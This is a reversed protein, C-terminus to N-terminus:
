SYDQTISWFLNVGNYYFVLIDIAGVATSLTVAGAGANAVKSVPNSPLTLTYSGAGGQVVEITGYDGAVLNNVSLTRSATLTVKVNYAKSVDWNIIAEDVLTVPTQYLMLSNLKDSTL